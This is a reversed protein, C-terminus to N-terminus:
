RPVGITFTAAIQSFLAVNGAFSEQPAGFTVLYAVGGTVTYFQQLQLLRGAITAQYTRKYAPHGALTVSELGIQRYDSLQQRLNAEGAQDYEDLTVSASPLKELVVNVTAPVQGSPTPAQFAVEAGHAQVQTWDSPISLSFRLQSDRYRQEGQSVAITVTTTPPPSTLSPPSTAVPQSTAAPFSWPAVSNSARSPAAVLTATATTTGPRDGSIARFVLVLSAALLLLSAAIAVWQLLGFTAASRAATPISSPPIIIPETPRLPAPLADTPPSALRPSTATAEALARAFDGATPFREEPHKALARDCAGQYPTLSAGARETLSPAPAHLHGNVLQHLTGGYPPRGTLLEVAVCGLAYIDTARSVRGDLQEPAMYTVTGIVRSAVSSTGELLRALGFDALLLREGDDALLLNQPKVDRHVLNRAHAYDLAAAAQALYRAARDPALHGERALLDALTGGPIYPMVLYASGNAEGFDHVGLINPHDLQAVTAAEREFRALFDRHDTGALLAPDLTKVAVARGLRLHSALYVTAFGGRALPRDLRYRGDLIDGPNPM